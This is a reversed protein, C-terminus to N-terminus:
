VIGWFPSFRLPFSVFRPLEHHVLVSGLVVVRQLMMLWRQHVIRSLGWLMEVVVSRTDVQESGINFRHYLSGEGERQGGPEGDGGSRSNGTERNLDLQRGQLYHQRRRTNARRTLIDRRVPTLNERVHRQRSMGAQTERERSGSSLAGRRSRQRETDAQTERERSGPSLAGRRSRQRETDAQTERERSGPSLAGRRSRQRETDAQTERERSGPSLAGKGSRAPRRRESVAGRLSHVEGAGKGSQAPRGRGRSVTWGDIVRVQFRRRRRRRRRRRTVCVEPVKGAREGVGRVHLPLSCFAEPSIRCAFTPRSQEDLVHLLKQHLSRLDPARSVVPHRQALFPLHPRHLDGQGVVAGGRGGGEAGGGRQEAAM